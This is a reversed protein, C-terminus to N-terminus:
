SARDLLDELREVATELDRPDEEYKKKKLGHLLVFRDSFHDTFYLRPNNQSKLKYLFIDDAKRTFKATNLLTNLGHTLLMELAKHIRGYEEQTLRTKTKRDDPYNGFLDDM